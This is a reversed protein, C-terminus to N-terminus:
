LKSHEITRQTTSRDGFQDFNESGTRRSDVLYLSLSVFLPAPLQKYRVMRIGGGGEGGEKESCRLPM